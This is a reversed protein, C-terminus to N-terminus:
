LPSEFKKDKIRILNELILSKPNMCLSLSKMRVM